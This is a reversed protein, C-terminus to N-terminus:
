LGPPRPLRYSRAAHAGAGATVGGALSVAVLAAWAVPLGLQGWLPALLLLGGAAAVGWRAARGRRVARRWAAEVDEALTGEGGPDLRLRTGPYRPCGARCRHWRGAYREPYEAEQRCVPCRVRM